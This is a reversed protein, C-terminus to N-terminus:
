AKKTLAHSSIISSLASSLFGILLFGASIYAMNYLDDFKSYYDSLDSNIDFFEFNRSNNLAKKLDSTAGFVAGVGVALLFSIVKDGYFDFQLLRYHNSLRKGTTLYYVAFPIQLLTYAFGVFNTFLMFKYANFESYSIIFKKSNITCAASNMKMLAVSVALSAITVARAVLTALPVKSGKTEDEINM